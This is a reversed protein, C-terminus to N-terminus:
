AMASWSRRGTTAGTTVATYDNWQEMPYLEFRTDLFVPLQPCGDIQYSAFAQFQYGKPWAGSPQGSLLRTEGLFGAESSHLLEGAPLTRCLFDTAAIPTTDSLLPPRHILSPLQPRLWPMSLILSLAFFGLIIYNFMPVGVQFPRPKTWWGHLLVALAPIYILGYWPIVRRTFLSLAALSVLGLLQDTPLRKKSHVLAAVLLLATVVFLVGGGSRITLPAFEMNLDVTAKSQLFGLVYRVIGLPGQPNITLAALAALGAGALEVLRRRNAVFAQSPGTWARM